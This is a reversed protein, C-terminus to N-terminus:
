GARGKQRMEHGNEGSDYQKWVSGKQDKPLAPNM